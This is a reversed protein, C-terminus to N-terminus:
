EETKVRFDIDNIPDTDKKRYSALGKLEDAKNPFLCVDLYGVNNKVSWNYLDKMINQLEEVPNITQPM